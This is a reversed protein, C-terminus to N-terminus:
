YQPVIIKVEEGIHSLYYEFKETTYSRVTQWSIGDTWLYVIILPGRPLWFFLGDITETDKKIFDKSLESYETRVVNSIFTKSSEINLPM